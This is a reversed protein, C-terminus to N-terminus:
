LLQTKEVAKENWNKTLTHKKVCLLNQVICRKYFKQKFYIIKCSLFSFHLFIIYNIECYYSLLLKFYVIWDNIKEIVGNM